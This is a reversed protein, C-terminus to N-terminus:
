GGRVAVDVQINISIELIHRGPKSAFDHGLVPEVRPPVDTEGENRLPSGDM